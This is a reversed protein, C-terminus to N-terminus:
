PTERPVLDNDHPNMQKSSTDQWLRVPSTSIVMVTVNGAQQRRKDIGHPLM